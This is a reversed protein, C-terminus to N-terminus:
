YDKAKGCYSCCKNFLGNLKEGCYQCRGRYKRQEVLIELSSLCNEIEENTKVLFFRDEDINNNKTTICLYGGVYTPDRLDSPYESRRMYCNYNELTNILKKRKDFDLKLKKYLKTSSDLRNMDKRSFWMFSLADGFIKDYDFSDIFIFFEQNIDTENYLQISSDLADYMKENSYSRKNDNYYDYSPYDPIKERNAIGCITIAFESKAVGIWGRYDDPYKNTVEEYAKRAEEYRELQMYTEANKLLQEKELSGDNGYVNVVGAQINNSINYNNIAKEVVYPTNCFPCVAADQSNDVALVGGCNTCKAQVFAM